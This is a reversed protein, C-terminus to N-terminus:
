AVYYYTNIRHQDWDCDEIVKIKMGQSQLTEVMMYPIQLGSYLSSHKAKMDTYIRMAEEKSYNGKRDKVVSLAAKQGFFNFHPVTCGWEGKGSFQGKALVVSFRTPSFISFM